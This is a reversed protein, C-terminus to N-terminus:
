ACEILFQSKLIKAAVDFCVPENQFVAVVEDSEKLAHEIAMQEGEIGAPILGSGIQLGEGIDPFDARFQFRLTHFNFATICEGSLAWCRKRDPIRVSVEDENILVTLSLGYCFEM